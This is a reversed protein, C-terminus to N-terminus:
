FLSFNLSLFLFSCLEVTCFNNQQFILPMGKGQDVAKDDHQVVKECKRMYTANGMYTRHIACPFLSFLCLCIMCAPLRHRNVAQDWDYEIRRCTQTHTRTSDVCKPYRVQCTNLSRLRLSTSKKHKPGQFLSIRICDTNFLAFGFLVIENIVSHHSKLFIAFLVSCFETVM